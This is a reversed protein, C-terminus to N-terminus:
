CAIASDSRACRGPRPGGDPQHPLLPPWNQSRPTSNQSRPASNQSRSASNQSRPASNQSRRRLKSVASPTKLGGVSNQSRRRLKFVTPPIRYKQQGEPRLHAMRSNTRRTTPHAPARQGFDREGEKGMRGRGRSAGRKRTKMAGQERINNNHEGDEEEDGKTENRKM